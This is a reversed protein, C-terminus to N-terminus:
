ARKESHLHGCMSDLCRAHFSQVMAVCVARMSVCPYARVATISVAAPGQLENEAEERQSWHISNAHLTRPMAAFSLLFRVLPGGSSASTRRENESDSHSLLAFSRKNSCDDDDFPLLPHLNLADYDVDRNGPVCAAAADNVDYHQHSISKQFLLRPALCVCPLAQRHRRRCCPRVFDFM